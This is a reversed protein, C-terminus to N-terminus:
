GEVPVFKRMKFDFKAPVFVSMRNQGKNATPSFVTLTVHEDDIKLLRTRVTKPLHAKNRIMCNYYKSGIGLFM